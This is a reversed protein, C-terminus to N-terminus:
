ARVMLLLANDVSWEIRVNASFIAVIPIKQTEQKAIVQIM